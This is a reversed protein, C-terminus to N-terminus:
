KGIKVGIVEGSVILEVRRNKQRGAATDNDAIPQNKGYGLATVSEGGLGQRVLYNRVVEARQESLKQNFDDTGVSDTHGEVALNLGSHALIIGSLRALKERADSALDYKGTAFLVDAMTIVLGRSTDRTELIRNFQELLGNRLEVTAQRAREAESRAAGEQARLADAEAKSKAAAIEAQARMRAEKADAEAKMQAERAAALEAQRQAEEDARRKAEAAEAAAKAEAEAKAKAAAAAREDAIREQEQKEVTLARADEAFQAVQRASSVIVKRDAKRSLANEAMHLGGEAKSYIESAYKDAGRAKAIEVANRAEYMELPVNKLDPSLALPNGLKQYQNRRMLHYDNVTFVKGKTGKRVANELVLMESPQRVVSYPEATVFLSFSQLPATAKLKGRGNNVVIGGLNIARGEPSVAWLVYTLFEAGLETPPELGEIKVEVNTAGPKAQVRAEGDAQPILGTSKLDVTTGGGGVPYGIAQINRGTQGLVAREAVQGWGISAAALYFPVWRQYM